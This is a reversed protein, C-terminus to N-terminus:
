ATVLDKLKKLTDSLYQFDANKEKVFERIFIKKVASVSAEQLRYYPICLKQCKAICFM